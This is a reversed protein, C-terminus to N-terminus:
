LKTYPTEAGKNLHIYLIKRMPIGILGTACNSSHSQFILAEHRWQHQMHEEQTGEAIVITISYNGTPFIPRRFEFEASFIHKTSCLSPIESLHSLYQGRVNGAWAQRKRYFRCYSQSRTQFSM